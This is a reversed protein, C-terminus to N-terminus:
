RRAGRADFDRRDVPRQTRIYVEDAEALLRAMPAYPDPRGYDARLKDLDLRAADELPRLLEFALFAGGALLLALAIVLGVM